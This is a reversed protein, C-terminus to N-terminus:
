EGKMVPVKNFDDRKFGFDWVAMDLGSDCMAARAEILGDEIFNFLNATSVADANGLKIGEVFHGYKGVGGSAILPVNTMASVRRIMELDLGEGTGDRDMSTLYIEGCGLRKALMVADNVSIGASEAGDRTFVEIRGEKTEKYDVSGVVCQSGFTRVLQKVLEPDKLIPTNVVLKDAGADLIRYADEIRRIGGGAAVPMFCNRSLEAMNAAFGEVGKAGREVNLVMLEDISHSIANFNYYEKIWNLDGVAQLSFNRSLM